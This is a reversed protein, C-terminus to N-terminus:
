RLCASVVYAIGIICFAAMLCSVVIMASEAQKPEIGCDDFRDHNLM